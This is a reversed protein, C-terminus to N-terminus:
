RRRSPGQNGNAAEEKAEEMLEDMQSCVRLVEKKSSEQLAPVPLPGRPVFCAVAPPPQSPVTSYLRTCCSGSFVRTACSSPIQFRGQRCVFRFTWVSLFVAAALACTILDAPVRTYSRVYARDRQVFTRIANKSLRTNRRAACMSASTFASCLM